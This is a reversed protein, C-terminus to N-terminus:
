TVDPLRNFFPGTEFVLRDFRAGRLAVSRKLVFDFLLVNHTRIERLPAVATRDLLGSAVLGDLSVLPLVGPLPYDSGNLLRAHWDRRELVAGLVDARNVQTLASVDAYLQRSYSPTEMLRAFLHFNARMPGAAGRDIDRGVGLSGCHAVIVRVGLDLPHRLRLPNGLEEANGRVAHEDGAHTLLPLQTEALRRYFPECSPLAPDINQASPLWKIARAGRAIAADLRDLADPALPHISAAWEFHAPYRTAVEAAYSDPVYFTSQAKLPAGREDRAWDFALLLVKFGIPMAECQNLLRDVIASDIKGDSGHVCGANLLFLRQVYDYPRLVNEMAPNFWPGRGSDGNGFLHCHVDWIKGVDIDEFAQVVLPHRRLADSLGAGCANFIGERLSLDCGTTAGAAVGGGLWGLFRRRNM